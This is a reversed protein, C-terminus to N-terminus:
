RLRPHGHVIPVIFDAALRAFYKTERIMELAVRLKDGFPYLLDGFANAGGGIYELALMLVFGFGQIHGNPLNRFNPAL